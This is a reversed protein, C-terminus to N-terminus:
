SVNKGGGLEKERKVFKDIERLTEM